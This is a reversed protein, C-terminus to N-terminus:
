LYGMFLLFFQLNVTNFDASFHFSETDENGLSALEDTLTTSVM